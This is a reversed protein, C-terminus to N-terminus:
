EDDEKKDKLLSEDSDSSTEVPTTNTTNGKDRNINKGAASLAGRKLYVFIGAVVILSIVVIPMAPSSQQKGAEKTADTENEKTPSDEKPISDVSDASPKDTNTKEIEGESIQNEINEKETEAESEIESETEPETEPEPEPEVITGDEMITAGMAVKDNIEAISLGTVMYAKLVNNNGVYVRKITPASNTYQNTVTITYVGENKFVDGDTASSNFRTDETLGDFGDKLVERKVNVKLYKSNAFDLRFGNETIAGNSLESGTVTDFLFVLTNGNRVSFKFYIRYHATEPLVSLGLIETKDFKVAYDLAVEYDGEEFLNIKTDADVSATARLFDTYVQPKSKSDETIHRVILAGHGFDMTENVGGPVEFYADSGKNDAIIRIKENGFCKDIDQQLDFWLSVRDGNNKLFIPTGQADTVCDTYGGVYFQGVDWGFHPDENNMEQAGQYGEFRATRVKSGLLKKNSGSPTTVNVATNDFAYFTYVEAIKHREYEDSKVFLVQSTGTKIETKYAIIVRYYCGNVMQVETTEYLADNQNTPQDAFVNTITQNPITYWIDGDKSTQIIMAGKMINTDLTISDIIKSKDDVLHTQEDPANLMTDTYKYTFTLTGGDTGYSPIGDKVTESTISGAVEFTGYTDGKSTNVTEEPSALEYKSKEGFIYKTGAVTITRTNTAAYVEDVGIGGYIGIFVLVYAVIPIIAKYVKKM